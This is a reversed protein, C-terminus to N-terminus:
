HYFQNPFLKVHLSVLKNWWKDDKNSTRDVIVHNVNNGEHAMRRVKQLISTTSNQQQDISKPLQERDASIGEWKTPNTQLVTLEWMWIISVHQLPLDTVLTARDLWHYLIRHETSTGPLPRGETALPSIPVGRTIGRQNYFIYGLEKRPSFQFSSRLDKKRRKKLKWILQMTSKQRSRIPSAYALGHQVTAHRSRWM